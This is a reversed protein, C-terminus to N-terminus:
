KPSIGGLGIKLFISLADFLKKIFNNQSSQQSKHYM